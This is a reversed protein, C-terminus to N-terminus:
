LLNGAPKPLPKLVTLYGYCKKALLYLRQRISPKPFRIRIQDLIDSETWEPHRERLKSLATKRMRIHGETEGEKERFGLLELWKLYHAECSSELNSIAVDFGGLGCLYDIAMERIIVPSENLFEKGAWASNSNKVYVGMIDNGMYHINGKTAQILSFAYDGSYTDMTWDPIEPMNIKRELVSLHTIFNKQTLDDITFDSTKLAEGKYKFGKNEYWNLVRHFCLSTEPHCEMYDVMKQLKHADTWYDDADCIAVYKGTCHHWTSQYNRSVGLNHANQILKIKGPFREKWFSCKVYTTDTSCDDGIVLEVRFNTNQGMVGAIARDIYKESNYAIMMVSVMVEEM